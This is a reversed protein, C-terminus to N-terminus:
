DYKVQPSQATAALCYNHSQSHELDSILEYCVNRPDRREGKRGALEITCLM